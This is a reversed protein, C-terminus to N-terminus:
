RDYRKKREEQRQPAGSAWHTLRQDVSRATQTRAGSLAFDEWGCVPRLQVCGKMVMRGDDRYSQFVPLFSTFDCCEAQRQCAARYLHFYGWCGVSDIFTCCYLNFNESFCHGYSIFMMIIVPIMRTIPLSSATWFKQCSVWGASFFFNFMFFKWIDSYFKALLRLVIVKIHM